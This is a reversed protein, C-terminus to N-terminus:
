GRVLASCVISAICLFSITTCKGFDILSEAYLSILAAFRVHSFCPVAVRLSVALGSLDWSYVCLGPGHSRLLLLLTLLHPLYFLRSVASVCLCMFMCVCVSVCLYACESLCMYVSACVPVYVCAYVLCVPMSTCVCM